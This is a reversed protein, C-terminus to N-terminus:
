SDPIIAGIPGLDADVYRAGSGIPMNWISDQAFPWKWDNRSTPFSGVTNSQARLFPELADYFRDAVKEAGARSHHVNDNTVFDSELPLVNNLDM